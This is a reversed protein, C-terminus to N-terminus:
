NNWEVIAVGPRGGSGGSLTGGMGGNVTCGEGGSGLGGLSPLAALTSGGKGGTGGYSYPATGGNPSGAAGQTGATPTNGIVAASPGAGGGVYMCGTAPYYACSAQGGGGGSYDLGAGGAGGFGGGGGGGFGGNGGNGASGDVAPNSGPSGGAATINGFKSDGGPGGQTGTYTMAYLPTGNNYNYTGTTVGTCVPAAGGAGIIIQQDTTVDIMTSVIRGSGGGGGGTAGNTYAGYGTYFFNMFWTSGGGGGGGVLTLMVNIPTGPSPHKWLASQTYVKKNYGGGGGSGAGGITIDAWSSGNCYQLKGNAFRVADVNSGTCGTGDPRVKLYGDGAASTQASWVYSGNVLRCMLVQGGDAALMTRLPTSCAQGLAQASVPASASLTLAILWAGTAAFTMKMM